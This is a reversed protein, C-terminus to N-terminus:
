YRIWYKKRSNDELVLVLYKITYSHISINDITYNHREEIRATEHNRTM